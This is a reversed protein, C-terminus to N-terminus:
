EIQKTALMEWKASLKISSHINIHADKQFNMTRHSWCGQRAVSWLSFNHPKYLISSDSSIRM